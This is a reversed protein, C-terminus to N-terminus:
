FLSKPLNDDNDFYYGLINNVTNELKTNTKILVVVVQEKEYIKLIRFRSYESVDWLLYGMLNESPNDIEQITNKHESNTILIKSIQEILSKEINSSKAIYVDRIQNLSDMIFVALINDNIQVLHRVKEYRDNNNRYSM